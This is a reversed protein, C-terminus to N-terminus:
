KGKLELDMFEYMIKHTAMKKDDYRTVGKRAVLKEFFQKYSIMLHYKTEISEEAYQKRIWGQYYDTFGKFNYDEDFLLSCIKENLDGKYNDLEGIVLRQLRQVYRMRSYSIRRLRIVEKMCHFVAVQLVQDVKHQEFGAVIKKLNSEIQVAEGKVHMLPMYVTYDMYNEYDSEILKLINTICGSMATQLMIMNKDIRPAKFIGDLLVTCERQIQNIQKCAMTKTSMISTFMNITKVMDGFIGPIMQIWTDIEQKTMTHKSPDMDNLILAKLTSTTHTRM